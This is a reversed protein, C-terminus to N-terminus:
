GAVVKQGRGNEVVDALLPQILFACIFSAIRSFDRLEGGQWQCGKEPQYGGCGSNRGTM